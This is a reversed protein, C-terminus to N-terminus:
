KVRCVASKRYGTRVRIFGMLMKDVAYDGTDVLLPRGRLLALKNPTAVIVVNEKGVERIIEPAIQQNGRGFIFGQGGIPTVVIKTRKGHVREALKAANVDSAILRRNCVVDVGLLTKRLGLRQLIARTTTGPGIVYLYDEEMDEVLDSAIDEMASPEDSTSEVKFGQVATEVYPVKLYGFLSASLRNARFAREDIDMVEAERTSTLEGRLYMAALHGASRPNVAFVASHIKVGTPIGLATVKDSIVECVDRATGDGGAFLLLDVGLHMMEYAANKTDQSSTNGKTIIGLVNPRFGCECAEDQGMDSPYTFLEISDRLPLIQELAEVTRRPSMSVGGLKRALRLIDQGDTGKLAVRGGMGAVPNVIVGLKRKTM